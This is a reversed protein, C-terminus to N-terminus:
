REGGTRRGGALVTARHRRTCRRDAAHLVGRAFAPRPRSRGPGPRGPGASRSERASADGRTRRQAAPASGLNDRRSVGATRGSGKPGFAGGITARLRTACARGRSNDSALGGSRACGRIRRGRDKTRDGRQEPGNIASRRASRAEIKENRDDINGRFSAAVKTPRDCGWMGVREGRRDSAGAQDLDANVANAPAMSPSATESMLDRPVVAFEHM